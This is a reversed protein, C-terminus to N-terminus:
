EADHRRPVFLELLLLATAGPGRVVLPLGKRPKPALATLLPNSNRINIIGGGRMQAYNKKFTCNRMTPSSGEDNFMGGGLMHAYNQVFACDLITPSGSVNIMGGGHQHPAVQGPRGATITFGDLIATKGTGSGTVVHYANERISFGHPFEEPVDNGNLDGSLITKHLVIDRKNPDREGLGAYGGRLAVGNRLRFTIERDGDPVTPRYVGQAVRIEDGDEAVALADQLDDFAREWSSGDGNPPADVDVHITKAAVIGPVLVVCLFGILRKM